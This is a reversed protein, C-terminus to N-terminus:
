IVAILAFVRHPIRLDDKNPCTELLVTLAEDFARRKQPELSAIGASAQIRGRWAPKTYPTLVDYSFSEIERVGAESLQKLWYPYLGMGGAGRWQPCFELILRETEEVVNGALPLWDFHAIVLRGGPRLIRRVEAVAKRGDFWHWCQGATVLDCTEGALGTEEATGQRFDIKLGEEAAM